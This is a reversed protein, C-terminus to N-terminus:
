NQNIYNILPILLTETDEITKPHDYYVSHDNNFDYIGDENFSGTCGVYYKNEKEAKWQIIFQKVRQKGSGEIQLLYVGSPLDSVDMIISNDIGEVVGLSLQRVVLGQLNFVKISAESSKAYFRVNIAEGKMTPNPFLSLGGSDCGTDVYVVKSYEFSGDLDVM